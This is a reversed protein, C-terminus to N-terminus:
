RAVPFVLHTVRDGQICTTPNGLLVDESSIEGLFPRNGDGMVVPVLDLRKRAPGLRERIRTQAGGDNSRSVNAPCIM